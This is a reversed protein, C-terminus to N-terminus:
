LSSMVEDVVGYKLQDEVYMYWESNKHKNFTKVDIKTKQLVYERMKEVTHNYDKMQAQTQEFTGQAGGSGSHILATATPLTFRKHGSILILFAASMAVGMNYTYVPTKSLNIIDMLSFCVAADGGYCHLYIKIPKRDEVPIGEDQKNFRMIQKGIELSHDDISDDLWIERNKLNNYFTLLDPDPGVPDTVEKDLDMGLLETLEEINNIENM